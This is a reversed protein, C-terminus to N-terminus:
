QQRLLASCCRAPMRTPASICGRRTPTSRCTAAYPSYACGFRRGSRGPWRSLPSGDCARTAVLALLVAPWILYFQEEVALSWLHQFPSPRGAAIFYSRHHLVYWWNSVYGLAAAIDGRAQGLDASAFVAMFVAVVALMAVLAPLLRRARRLYFQRLSLHGALRAESLLLSTILFGSIVFFLDVGLFGGPLFGEGAHYLLVGIVAIARLGDLGPLRRAAPGPRAPELRATAQPRGPTRNVAVSKATKVGVGAGTIKIM